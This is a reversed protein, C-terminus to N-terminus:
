LPRFAFSLVKFFGIEIDVFSLLCRYADDLPPHTRAGGGPGAAVAAPGVTHSSIGGMPEMTSAPAALEATSSVASRVRHKPYM